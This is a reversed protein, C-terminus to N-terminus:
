HGPNSQGTWDSMIRLTILTIETVYIGLKLSLYDDVLDDIPLM